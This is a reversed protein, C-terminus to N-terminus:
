RSAGSILHVETGEGSSVIDASGGSRDMRALISEGIGKRDDGVQDPDFGTGHDTIWAEVSDPSCEIYVSV